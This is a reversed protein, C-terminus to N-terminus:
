DEGSWHTPGVGLRRALRKIEDIGYPRLSPHRSKGATEAADCPQMGPKAASQRLARLADGLLTREADSLGEISEPKPLIQTELDSLNVVNISPSTSAGAEGHV